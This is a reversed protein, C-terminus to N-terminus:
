PQKPEMSIVNPLPSSLVSSEPDFTHTVLKAAAGKAIDRTIVLLRPLEVDAGPFIRPADAVEADTSLDGAPKGDRTSYARLNSAQGSVMLTTGAMVPPWAPRLPLPRIWRQAGTTRSLARLVNDM